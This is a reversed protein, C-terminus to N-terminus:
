LTKMPPLKGVKGVKFVRDVGKTINSRFDKWLDVLPRKMDLIPGGITQEYRIDDVWVRKMLRGIAKEYGTRDVKLRSM